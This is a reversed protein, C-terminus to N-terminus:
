RAVAGLDLAEYTPISEASASTLFLPAWGTGSWIRFAGVFIPAVPREDLDAEVDDSGMVFEGSPVLVM